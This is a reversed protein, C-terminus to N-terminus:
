VLGHGPVWLGMAHHVFCRVALRIRLRDCGPEVCTEPGCEPGQNKWFSQRQELASRWEARRIEDLFEDNFYQQYLHKGRAVFLHGIVSYYPQLQDVVRLLNDLIEPTLLLYDQFDVLAEMIKSESKLRDIVFITELGQYDLTPMQDSWSSIAFSGLAKWGPMRAITRVDRYGYTDPRVVLCFPVTPPEIRSFPEYRDQGIYYMWHYDGHEGQDIRPDFVWDQM